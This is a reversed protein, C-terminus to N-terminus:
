PTSEALSGAGYVRVMVSIDAMNANLPQPPTVRSSLYGLGSIDWGGVRLSCHSHRGKDGCHTVVHLAEGRLAREQTHIQGVDGSQEPFSEAKLLVCGQLYGASPEQAAKGTRM